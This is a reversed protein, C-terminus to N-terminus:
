NKKLKKRSSCNAGDDAARKKSQTLAVFSKKKEKKKKAIDEFEDASGEDIRVEEDERFEDNIKRRLEAEAAKNALASANQVKRNFYRDCQAAAAFFQIRKKKAIGKQLQLLYKM